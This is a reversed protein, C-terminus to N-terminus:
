FLKRRLYAYSVYIKKLFPIKFNIPYKKKRVEKFIKYNVFPAYNIEGVRDYLEKWNDRLYTDYNKLIRMSIEDNKRILDFYPLYHLKSIRQLAYEANLFKVSSYNFVIDNLIKMMHNTHKVLNSASMTQAERGVLYNYLVLDIFLVTSCFSMPIISWQTDTYSIGETQKYNFKTFISSKYSITHMPIYNKALEREVNEMCLACEYKYIRFDLDENLKLIQNNENVTQFSTIIADTDIHHLKAVFQSFVDKDFYDDADLIKVYRGSVLPLATNICSGYNGNEKDIVRFSEPYRKEYEHAIESSRDTSGDNIVLVEVENLEPIILSDLCKNLYKEM